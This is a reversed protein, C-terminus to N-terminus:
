RPITWDFLAQGFGGSMGKARHAHLEFGGAQKAYELPRGTFPDIPVWPLYEPVLQPLVEPYSGHDLRYRRLAVSTEAANLVSHFEWGTDIENSLWPTVFTMRLAKLVPSRSLHWERFKRLEQQSPPPLTAHAADRQFPALAQLQIFRDFARLDGLRRNSVIPRLLWNVPGARRLSTAWPYEVARGQELEMFWANATKMEGVLGMRTPDPWRSDTLAAALGSLAQASPEARQLMEQVCGLQQRVAVMRYSQMQTSWENRMSSAEALGTLAVEVARELNGDELEVRCAAALLMNLRSLNAPVHSTEGRFYSLEWTAKPLTRGQTAVYLALRNRDVLQRMSDTVAAPRNTGTLFRGMEITKTTFDFGALEAAGRMVRARNEPAPVIPPNMSRTSLTGYSKELRAVEEGIQRGIWWGSIARAAVILVVLAIVLVAGRRWNRRWLGAIRDMM